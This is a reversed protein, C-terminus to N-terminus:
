FSSHQLVWLLASLSFFSVVTTLLLAAASIAAHGHRQSLL